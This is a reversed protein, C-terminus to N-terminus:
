KNTTQFLHHKSKFLSVVDENESDINWTHIGFTDAIETHTKTDDIFLCEDPELTHSKLVFRFIKEEPKRMGIEHSLYFSHFCSKFRLYRKAGMEEIVKQIHLENTNSLLILLYNNEKYLREIFNLRHEPFDLMISNWTKILWEHTTCPFTELYFELFEKTSVQGKEYLMNKELMDHSFSHIGLKSLEFQASEKNLNIFVDGLDFIITKIM